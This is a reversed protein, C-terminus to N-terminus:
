KDSVLTVCFTHNEKKLNFDLPFIFFIHFPFYSINSFYSFYSNDLKKSKELRNYKELINSKKISVKIQWIKGFDALFAKVHFVRNHWKWQEGIFMRKSYSEPYLNLLEYNKKM